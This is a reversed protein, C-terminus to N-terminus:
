GGSGATNMTVEQWATQDVISVGMEEVDAGVFIWGPNGLESMSVQYCVHNGSTTAHKWGTRQNGGTRAVSHVVDQSGFATVRLTYVLTPEAKKRLESCVALNGDPQQAAYVAVLDGGPLIDRPLNDHAPDRQVPQIPAGNTDRWTEPNQWDGQALAPLAVPQVLGFLENKRIFSDLLERLLPLQSRYKTIAQAKQNEDDNTLDLRFWDQNIAYVQPPPLLNKDPHMGKPQPFDPRHVLYTYTDPKYDPMAQKVEALAAQTFVSLGWHDPHADLPSPYIILDPKYDEIIARLDALYSEGSYNANPNYTLAYPSKTTGTYPSYYPDSASWHTNWLSPSGRDPYSLFIVDQPRVGLVQLANLSEQQRVNGMRIFDPHRPYIRRFDGMTAFLFGDGNTAIAVKVEMKDRLAAQILGASGLTEDDTHPALVLVRQHGALPLPELDGLGLTVTPSLIFLTIWFGVLLLFAALLIYWRKKIGNWLGLARKM